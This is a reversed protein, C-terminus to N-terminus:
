WGRYSNRFYWEKNFHRSGGCPCDTSICPMGMSMAELLSNSIGEYDSSLVYMTAEQMRKHIDLELGKFIVNQSLGLKEVYRQLQEQETGEGYIHLRYSNDKKNFLAFAELLM